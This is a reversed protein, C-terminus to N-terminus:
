NKIYEKMLEKTLLNVEEETAGIKDKKVTDKVVKEILLANKIQTQNNFRSLDVVHNGLYYRKYLDNFSINLKATSLDKKKAEYVKRLLQKKEDELSLHIKRHCNPCICLINEVRDINVNKFDKQARMPVIHHGEMFQTGNIRFFTKHSKDFFCKYDSNKFVTEKIRRDIVYRTRSNEELKPKVETKEKVQSEEPENDDAEFDFTMQGM